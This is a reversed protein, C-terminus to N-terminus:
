LLFKFFSLTIFMIPANIGVSNFQRYTDLKLRIPINAGNNDHAKKIITNNLVGLALFVINYPIPLM